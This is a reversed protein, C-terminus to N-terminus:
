RRSRGVLVADAVREDIAGFGTQAWVTDRDWYPRGDDGLSIPTAGRGLAGACTRCAPIAVDQKGRRWHSARLGDGHRPDFFCPPPVAGELAQRGRRALVSAGVLDVPRADDWTLVHSAAEFSRLADESPAPASDIARGLRSVADRAKKRAAAVSPESITPDFRAAGAAKASRLMTSRLERQAARRRRSSPLVTVVGLPVLFGLAGGTAMALWPLRDESKREARNSREARRGTTLHDLAFRVRGVPGDRRPVADLALSGVRRIEGRTRVGFAHADLQYGDDQIVYLGDRGLRDRLVAPLDSSVGGGPEDPFRPVIAVFTRFPMEAVQRRLRAVQARIVVRSLSPSVYVPDRRLERTLQAARSDGPAADVAAPSAVLVTVAVLLSCAASPFPRRVPAISVLTRGEPDRPQLAWDSRDPVKRANPRM